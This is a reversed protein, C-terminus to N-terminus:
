GNHTSFHHPMDVSDENDLLQGKEGPYKENKSHARRQPIKLIEENKKRAGVLNSEVNLINGKGSKNLNPSYNLKRNQHQYSNNMKSASFNGIKAGNLVTGM